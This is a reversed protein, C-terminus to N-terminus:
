RRAMAVLRASGRGTRACKTRGGKKIEGDRTEVATMGSGVPIGRRMRSVEGNVGAVGAVDPIRVQVPFDGGPGPDGEAGVPIRGQPGGEVEPVM